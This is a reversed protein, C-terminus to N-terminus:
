THVMKTEAQVSFINQKFIPMYLANKLICRYMHGKSNCLYICANGRKLMTIQEAGTQQNLMITGQNLIKTLILLNQNDTIIDETAGCDVLLNSKIHYSLIHYQKLCSYNEDYLTHFCLCYTSECTTHHFNNKDSVIDYGIM